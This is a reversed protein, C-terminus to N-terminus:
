LQFYTRILELAQEPTMSKESVKLLVAYVYAITKM